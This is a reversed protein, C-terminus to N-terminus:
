RYNLKVRSEPYQIHYWVRCLIFMIFHKSRSIHSCIVGVDFDNCYVTVFELHWAGGIDVDQRVTHAIGVRPVPIEAKSTGPTTPSLTTLSSRFPNASNALELM